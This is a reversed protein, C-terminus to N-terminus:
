EPVDIGDTATWVLVVVLAVAGGRQERRQIHQLARHDASAHLTMAVGLEDAKEVGNLAFHGGALHDLGDDVVVGCM